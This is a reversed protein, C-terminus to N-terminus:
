SPLHFQLVYTYKIANFRSYKNWKTFYIFIVIVADFHMINLTTLQITTLVIYIYYINHIYHTHVSCVGSCSMLSWALLKKLCLQMSKNLKWCKYNTSFMRQWMLLPTLAATEEWQRSKEWETEKRRVLSKRNTLMVWVNELKATVTFPHVVTFM